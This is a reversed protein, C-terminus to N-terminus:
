PIQMEFLTQTICVVITSQFIVDTFCKQHYSNAMHIPDAELDDTVVNGNPLQWSGIGSVNMASQCWLGDNNGDPTISHRPNGEDRSALDGAAMMAYNPITRQLYGLYLRVGPLNM